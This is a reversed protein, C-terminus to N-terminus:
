RDSLTFYIDGRLCIANMVSHICSKLFTNYRCNRMLYCYSVQDWVSATVMASISIVSMTETTPASIRLDSMIETEVASTVQFRSGPLKICYHLCYYIYYSVSVIYIMFYLFRFIHLLHFIYCRIYYIIISFIICIFSLQIFHFITLLWLLM